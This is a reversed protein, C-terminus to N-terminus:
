RQGMRAPPVPGPGRRRVGRCSPGAWRRAAESHVGRRRSLESLHSPRQRTRIAHPRRAGAGLPLSRCSESLHRLSPGECRTFMTSFKIPEEPTFSAVRARRERAACSEAAAAPRIHWGFRPRASGARRGQPGHFKWGLAPLEGGAIGRGSGRPGRRRRRLM